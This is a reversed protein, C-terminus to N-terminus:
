VSAVKQLNQYEQQQLATYIELTAKILDRAMDELKDATEKRIQAAQSQGDIEAINAPAMSGVYQSISDFIKAAGSVVQNWAMALSPSSMAMGAAGGAISVAASVLGLALQTAAMDRLEEAKEKALAMITDRQAFGELLQSAAEEGFIEIMLMMLMAMLERITQTDSSSSTEPTSMVTLLESADTGTTAAFEEWETRLAAVEATTLDPNLEQAVATLVESPTASPHAAVYEEIAQSLTDSDVGPLLATLKDEVDQWESADGSLTGSALAASIGSITLDSM